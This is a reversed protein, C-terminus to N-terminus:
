GKEYKPQYLMLSLGGPAKFFAVLGFGQDQVEGEFEVGKAKLKAVTAHIDECYFSIEHTGNPEGGEGTESAPHVGVEGEPPQFILWGGGADFSPLELVDRFFARLAEPESSYFMAHLGKIM